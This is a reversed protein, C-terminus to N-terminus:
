AGTWRYRRASTPTSSNVVPDQFGLTAGRMHYRAHGAETRGFAHDAGCPYADLDSRTVVTEEIRADLKGTREGFPLAIYPLEQPLPNRPPMDREGCADLTFAALTGSDGLLAEP